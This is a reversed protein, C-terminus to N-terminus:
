RQCLSQRHLAVFPRRMSGIPKPFGVLWVPERLNSLMASRITLEFRGGCRDLQWMNSVIYPSGKEERSYAFAVTLILPAHTVTMHVLLLLPWFWTTMKIKWEYAGCGFGNIRKREIREVVTM